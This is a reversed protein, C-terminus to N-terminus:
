RAGARCKACARWQLSSRWVCLWNHASACCSTWRRRMQTRALRLQGRCLTQGQGVEDCRSSWLHRVPGRFEFGCGRSVQLNNTTRMRPAFGRTLQLKRAFGPATESLHAHCAGTGETLQCLCAFLANQTAQVHALSHMGVAQIASMVMDDSASCAHLRLNRVM